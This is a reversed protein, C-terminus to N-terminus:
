RFPIGRTSVILLEYIFTADFGAARISTVRWERNKKRFEHEYFHPSPFFSFLVLVVNNRQEYSLRRVRARTTMQSYPMESCVHSPDNVNRAAAVSSDPLAPSPSLHRTWFCCLGCCTQMEFPTSAPWKMLRGRTWQQLCQSMGSLTGGENANHLVNLRIEDAREKLHPQFLLVLGLVPGWGENRDGYQHQTPHEKKKKKRKRRKHKTQKKYKETQVCGTFTHIWSWMVTSISATRDSKTREVPASGPSALSRSSPSHSAIWVDQVSLADPLYKLHLQSCLQAHMSYLLTKWVLKSKSM